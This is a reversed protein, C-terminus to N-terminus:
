QHSTVTESIIELYGWIKTENRKRQRTKKQRTKKQRTKKQRTEEKEKLM